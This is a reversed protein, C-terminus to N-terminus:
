DRESEHLVYQRWGQIEVIRAIWSAVEVAIVHGFYGLLTLDIKCQTVAKAETARICANTKRFALSLGVAKDAACRPFGAAEWGCGM